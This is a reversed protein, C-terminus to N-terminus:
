HSLGAGQCCRPRTRSAQPYRQKMSDYGVHTWHDRLRRRLTWKRSIDVVALPRFRPDTAAAPRAVASSGREALLPRDSPALRSVAEPGPEPSQRPRPGTGDLERASPHAFVTSNARVDWCAPSIFFRRSPGGVPYWNFKSRCETTAVCPQERCITLLCNRWQAFAPPSPAAPGAMKAAIAPAWSM